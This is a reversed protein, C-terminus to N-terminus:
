SYLQLFIWYTRRFASILTWHERLNLLAFFKSFWTIWQIFFYQKCASNLCIQIFAPYSKMISTIIERRVINPVFYVFFAKLLVCRVTKYFGNIRNTCFRVFYTVSLQPVRFLFVRGKQTRKGIFIANLWSEYMFEEHHICWKQFLSDLQWFQKNASPTQVIRFMFRNNCIKYLDM